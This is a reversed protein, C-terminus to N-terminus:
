GLGFNLAAILIDDVRIEDDGNVDLNPDYDPDGLDSGFALAIALIDDIRVKGDGNVDGQFTVMVTGDTLTNDPTDTEDPLLTAIATITYSGMAVGTTNWPITLTTSNGSALTVAQLELLTENVYLTVNFAESYAGYNMITINIPLNYGEGIITKSPSIETIGIDYETTMKSVEPELEYDISGDGNEDVKLTYNADYPVLNFEAVTESTLNFTAQSFAIEYISETPTIQGITINGYTTANIQVHYTLTLPLYFIKTDTANFYEFSADPIQNEIESTIRGYNDRITVNVPCKFISMSKAIQIVRDMFNKYYSPNPNGDKTFKQTYASWPEFGTAGPVRLRRDRWVNYAARVNNVQDRLWKATEYYYPDDIPAELNRLLGIHDPMHIQWLGWSTYGMCSIPESANQDGATNPTWNSEGGAIATMIVADEITWEYPSNTYQITLGLVKRVDEELVSRVEFEYEDSQIDGANIVRAKWLGSDTLGALIEIKNPSVFLTRDPPIIHVSSGISLNVKLDQVFFEGFIALLQKGAGAIPQPPDIDTIIPKPPLSVTYVATLTTTSSLTITKIRNADGDELWHFWVYESCTEPMEITYSDQQLWEIYATTEPAENITFPIETVPSSTVTLEYYPGTYQATLTVDTDMVVTRSQSTDGDSWQEWYYRAEGVTHTAPMVLSVFAGKSYSQSWPTTHPTNDATFTVGSPSSYVALTRPPEIGTTFDWRDGITSAGHNDTAVIKWYYTTSYSLTGPDYTTASQDNSVPPPSSSTGFYVDYTVTDGADPDGGSWSLDAYISVGTAHNSPSPNYPTYPPNNPPPPSQVYIDLTNTAGGETPIAPNWDGWPTRYACFFHYNGVKTLTLTGEYNHEAGPTLTKDMIWTFDAVQNDPDRGGVTLVDFTFPATARNTITFRATITEGVYYPPSQVIVLSLTIVPEGVVKTLWDEASWGVVSLYDVKWFYYFGSTGKPVGYFPGDLIKGVTGDTVSGKYSLDSSPPPDTRIILSAGGTDARVLNGTSFKTSPSVWIKKLYDDGGPYGEASWGELADDGWRVKWWTYVVGGLAASQPGALIMGRSGDYKGGIVNGAPADRVVLGSAGINFVEVTDGLNFNAALVLPQVSILLAMLMIVSVSKRLM